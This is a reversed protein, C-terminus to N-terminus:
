ICRKPGGLRWTVIPRLFARITELAYTVGQGAANSGPSEATTGVMDGLIMGHM